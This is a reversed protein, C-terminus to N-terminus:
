SELKKEERPSLVGADRTVTCLFCYCFVGQIELGGDLLRTTAGEGGVTRGSAYHPHYHHTHRQVLRSVHQCVPVRLCWCLSSRGRAYLEFSFGLEQLLLLDM